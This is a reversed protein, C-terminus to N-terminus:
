TLTADNGKVRSGAGPSIRRFVSRWKSAPTTPTPFAVAVDEPLPTAIDSSEVANVTSAPTDPAADATVTSGTGSIPHFSLLLSSLLTNNPVFNSTSLFTYLHLTNNPTSEDEPDCELLSAVITCPDIPVVVFMDFEVVVVAVFSLPVGRGLLSMSLLLGFLERRVRCDESWDIGSVIWEALLSEVSIGEVIEGLGDTGVGSGVGRRGIGPPILIGVETPPPAIDNGDPALEVPAAPDDDDAEADVELRGPL